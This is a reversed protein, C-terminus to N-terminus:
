AAYLVQRHTLIHHRRFPNVIRRREVLDIERGFIAHLEREMADWHDPQPEYEPPFGVLVDVDSYARCDSTLVSGFLSFEVINWKRCFAAVQEPTISVKPPMAESKVHQEPVVTEKADLRRRRRAAEKVEHTYSWHDMGPHGRKGGFGGESRGKYLGLDGSRGGRTGGMCM